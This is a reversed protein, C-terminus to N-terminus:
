CSSSSRAPSRRRDAAFSTGPQTELQAYAQSVDALPMMESGIKPYLAVGALIM